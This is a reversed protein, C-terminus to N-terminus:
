RERSVLQVTLEKSEKVETIVMAAQIVGLEEQARLAKTALHDPPDSWVPPEKLVPPVVHDMKVRKAMSVLTEQDATAEQHVRHDMTAKQELRDALVLIAEEDMEELIEMSVMAEEHVRKEMMEVPVEDEQFALYAVPDEIAKPDLQVLLVLPVLDAMQDLYESYDM